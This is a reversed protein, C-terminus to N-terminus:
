NDSPAFNFCHHDNVTHGSRTTKGKELHRFSCKDGKQKHIVHSKHGPVGRLIVKQKNIGSNM